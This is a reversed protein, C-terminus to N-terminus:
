RAASQASGNARLSATHVDGDSRWRAFGHAAPDYGRILAAIDPVAKGCTAASM